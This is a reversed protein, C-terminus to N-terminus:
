NFLRRGDVEDPALRVFVTRGADPAWIRLGVVLEPVEVADILEPVGAVVVSWGCRSAPDIEDVEAVIRRGRSERALASDPAIRFWLAGDAVAYNVPLISVGHEGAWGVRAIEARELLAWADYGALTALRTSM